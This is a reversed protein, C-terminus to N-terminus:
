ENRSNMPISIDISVGQGPQATISLNGNLGEVREKISRLGFGETPQLGDFGSGDDEIILSLCEDDTKETLKLEILVRNAKAHKVVNTLCEQIIRFLDINAEPYAEDIAEDCRLEITLDPHNTKWNGILDELSAILGLEDLLSPRLRRMMSRIVLFLHDCILVIQSAPHDSTENQGNRLAAAMVKIATLSQGLEDHLERALHRREEEQIRLSKHVLERNEKRTRELKSAMHNFASAIRNFEPLSFDPLRKDFVGKEIHGLGDLITDVSRFAQGVIVNVLMYVAIGLTILLMLFGRTESWVELIEDDANAEILITYTLGGKDQLQHSVQIPDPSVAWRFWRPVQNIAKSSPVSLNVTSSYPGIVRIRLHRIKDLKGLRNMWASVQSTERTQEPLGAEVLQLALQVTSLAEDKVAEHAGHLSALAGGLLILLMTVGITLNLRGRLTLPDRMRQRTM